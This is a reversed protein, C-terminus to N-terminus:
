FLEVAIEGAGDKEGRHCRGDCRGDDGAAEEPIPGAEMEDIEDRERGLVQPIHSEDGEDAAEGTDDEVVAEKVDAGEVMRLDKPRLCGLDNKGEETGTHESEEEWLDQAAAVMKDVLEGDRAVREGKQQKKQCGFIDEGEDAVAAACGASEEQGQEDDAGQGAGHQRIEEDIRSKERRHVRRIDDDDAHDGEESRADAGGDGPGEEDKLHCAVEIM